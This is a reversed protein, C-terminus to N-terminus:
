EGSSRVEPKASGIEVEFCDGSKAGGRGTMAARKVHNGIVLVARWFKQGFADQSRAAPRRPTKAAVLTPNTVSETFNKGSCASLPRVHRGNPRSPVTQGGCPKGSM